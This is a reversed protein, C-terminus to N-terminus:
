RADLHGSLLHELTVTEMRRQVDTLLLGWMQPMFRATGPDHRQLVVRPPAPPGDVAAVIQAVTIADAPRALTYGGAPGRRSVVLGAHALRGLVTATYKRPLSQVAAIGKAKVLIPDRAAIELLVRIAYDARLSPRIM